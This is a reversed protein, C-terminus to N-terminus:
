WEERCRGAGHRKGGLCVEGPDVIRDPARIIHGERVAEKRLQGVQLVKARRAQAAQGPARVLVRRVADVSPPLVTLLLLLSAFALAATATGRM